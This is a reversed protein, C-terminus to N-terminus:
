RNATYHISLIPLFLMNIVEPLLLIDFFIDNSPITQDERYSSCSSYFCASLGCGSNLQEFKPFFFNKSLILLFGFDPRSFDEEDM